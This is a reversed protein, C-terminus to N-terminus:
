PITKPCSRTGCGCRTIAKGGMRGLRIYEGCAMTQPTWSWHTTRTRRCRQSVGESKPLYISLENTWNSSLSQLGLKEKLQTQYTRTGYYDDTLISLQLNLVSSDGTLVGTSLSLRDINSVIQSRLFGLRSENSATIQADITEISTRSFYTYLLAAPVVVIMLVGIMRILIPRHRSM